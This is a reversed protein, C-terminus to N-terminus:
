TTEQYKKIARYLDAALFECEDICAGLPDVDLTAHYADNTNAWQQAVELVRQGEIYRANTVIELGRAQGSPSPDQIDSGM